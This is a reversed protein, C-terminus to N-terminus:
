GRRARPGRRDQLDGRRPQRRRDGDEGRAQDRARHARPQAARQADARARRHAPERKAEGSRAGNGEASRRYEYHATEESGGISISSIADTAMAACNMSFRVYSSIATPSVATRVRVSLGSSMWSKAMMDPSTLGACTSGSYACEEMNWSTIACPMHPPASIEVTSPVSNGPGPVM